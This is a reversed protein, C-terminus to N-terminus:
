KLSDTGTNKGNEFYIKLDEVWLLLFLWFGVFPFLVLKYYVWPYSVYMSAGVWLLLATCFLSLLYYSGLVWLFTCM